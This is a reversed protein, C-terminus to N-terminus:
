SGIGFGSLIGITACGHCRVSANHYQTISETCQREIDGMKKNQDHPQSKSCSPLTHLPSAIICYKKFFGSM